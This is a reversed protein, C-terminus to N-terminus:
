EPPFVPSKIIATVLLPLLIVPDAVTAVSFYTATDTMGTYMVGEYLYHWAWGLKDQVSGAAPVGVGVGAADAGFPDVARL